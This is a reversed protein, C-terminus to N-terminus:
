FNFLDSHCYNGLSSGSNNWDYMKVYIHQFGQVAKLSQLLAILMVACFQLLFERSVKLNLSFRVSVDSFRFIWDTRSGM